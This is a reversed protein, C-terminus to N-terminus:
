FLQCEWMAISLGQRNALNQFQNLVDRIENIQNMQTWRRNYHARTIRQMRGDIPCCPPDPIITFGRGGEQSGLCWLHKLYVSISKQSHSIRFGNEYVPDPHMLINYFNDNMIQQLKIVQKYYFNLDRQQQFLNGIKILESSWRNKFQTKINQDINPSYTRNHELSANIAKSLAREITRPPNYKQLFAQQYM